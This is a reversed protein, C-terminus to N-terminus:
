SSSSMVSSTWRIAPRHARRATPSYRGESIEVLYNGNPLQLAEHDISGGVCDNGGLYCQQTIGAKAAVMNGLLSANTEHVINGALDIQRVITSNTVGNGISNPGNGYVLINGGPLPRTLTATQGSPDNYYWVPAGANDIAEPINPATLSM